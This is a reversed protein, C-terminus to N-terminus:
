PPLLVIRVRGRANQYFAGLAAELREGVYWKRLAPTVDEFRQGRFPNTTAHHIERLEAESPELMPAVMRDLYLSARAERRVLLEVESADMGEAEAARQLQEAGGVRQELVARASEGRVAIEDPRPEPDMALHSLLEEAVHRELAARVHRDLYPAGAQAHDADSLAEIRAEFALEREFVFQPRLAGGTEPADFRVVARDIALSAASAATGPGSLVAAVAIAALPGAPGLRSRPRM